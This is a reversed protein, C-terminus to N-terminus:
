LIFCRFAIATTPFYLNNLQQGSECIVEALAFSVPELDTKRRALEGAPLAARLHNLVADNNYKNVPMKKVSDPCDLQESKFKLHLYVPVLQTQQTRPRESVRYFSEIHSVACVPTKFFGLNM